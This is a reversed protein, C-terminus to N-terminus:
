EHSGEPRKEACPLARAVCSTAAPQLDRHVPRQYFLLKGFGSRSGRLFHEGDELFRFCKPKGGTANCRLIRRRRSRQDHTGEAVVM